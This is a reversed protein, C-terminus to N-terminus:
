NKHLEFRDYVVGDMTVAKYKLSGGDVTIVQFLQLNEGMKEMLDKYLPQLVYNKPGCSSVVYVIGRAEPAVPVGGYLKKSRAYTHDHGQLALDVGRREFVEQFAERTEREDRNRGSSYFPQHFVAVTWRHPNHALVSDVWVAQEKLKDNGDLMLFRVGQYDIVYSAEELGPVGNEPLTFQPRWLPLVKTREKKGNPKKISAHDHNGPVMIMPVVRPIFGAAGFWEEWLKEEPDTTLDGSFVWFRADGAHRFTERFSRSVHELLDDQPDGLFVFSFPEAGASATTFQNWESWVSDHGVRYIYTTQPTLGGLVASSQTYVVDGKGALPTSIAGARRVAKVFEPGPTAVTYEVAASDHPASTRWTVAMSTAPAATLNLIVRQPVDDGAVANGTMFMMIVVFTMSVRSRKM